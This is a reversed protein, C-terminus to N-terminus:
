AERRQPGRPRPGSRAPRQAEDTEPGSGTEPFLVGDSRRTKYVEEAANVGIKELDSFAVVLLLVILAVTSGIYIIAMQELYLLVALVSVVGVLTVM